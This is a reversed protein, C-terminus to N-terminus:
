PIFGDLEQTTAETTAQTTAQTAAETTVQPTEQTVAQTTARPVVRTSAQTTAETTVETTIEEKVPEMKGSSLTFVINYTGGRKFSTGSSISQRIVCGKKITNSYDEKWTIDFSVDELTDLNELVEKKTMSICSLMKVPKETETVEQTDAIPEEAQNKLNNKSAESLYVGATLIGLFVVGLIVLVTKKSMKISIPATGKKEDESYLIVYLDHINQFRDQAHLSMGKMIAEKQNRSISIDPMEYLPLVKDEITRQIAEDPVVGTMAYYMTACLAYIDTWAGQKGSSRYQEEPSFGRKFLITVSRTMDANQLEASGFDILVLNHMEDFLLNDPSIDRHIIGTGHVTALAELVPQFMRLVERADIAGERKIYAKLSEGPIYDMVIYATNNEYFFDRVSVISNLKNFRTLNRAERLFRELKKEYESKEINAYIYVDTDKGRIVDRSVLDMPYYEKIAVPFALVEDWGIYTIGFSGEGLVKGLTYRNSLRTGPILCRPTPKYEKQVLGCHPCIGDEHLEKMCGICLHRNSVEM